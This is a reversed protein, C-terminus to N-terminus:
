DCGSYIHETLISVGKRRKEQMRINHLLAATTKRVTKYQQSERHRSTIEMM